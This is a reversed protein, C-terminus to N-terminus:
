TNLKRFIADKVSNKVHIVNVGENVLARRIYEVEQETLFIMRGKFDPKLGKMIDAVAEKASEISNFYYVDLAADYVAGHMLYRERIVGPEVGAIKAIDVAKYTGSYDIYYCNKKMGSMRIVFNSESVM